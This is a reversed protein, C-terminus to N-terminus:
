LLVCSGQSCTKSLELSVGSIQAALGEWRGAWLFSVPVGVWTRGGEYGKRIPSGLKTFSVPM